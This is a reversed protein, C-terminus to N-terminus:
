NDKLQIKRKNEQLFVAIDKNGSPPATSILDSTTRNELTYHAELGEALHAQTTGVNM